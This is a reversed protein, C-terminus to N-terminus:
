NVTKVPPSFSIKFPDEEEIRKHIEEWIQGPIEAGVIKVVYSAVLAGLWACKQLPENTLVGHLFGSAFLDGAGTSDIANVSFAPTYFLSKGSQTWCGRESLTVVVVECLSALNSCAEKASVGTLEKAESENCFLYDIYEPLIKLLFEKNRRVIELNGLDMAIRVGAKKAKKLVRLVLDSDVLQFGEMHFIQIGEFIKDEIEIDTLSHSAGLYSRFTREADPTIFCVAQGTPLKGEQLYSRIGLRNLSKLFFEGKEDNGIKGVVACSHNFRSLGKILNTGSGGPLMRSANPNHDLISSLTQYDIPAWTGKETTVLRLQEESILFFHDVIAASLSLVKAEKKSNEGQLSVTSFLSVIVLIKLFKVM